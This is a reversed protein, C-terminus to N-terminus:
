SPLPAMLGTEDDDDDDDDDDELGKPVEGVLGFGGGIRDGSFSVRSLIKEM